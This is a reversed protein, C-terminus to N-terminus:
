KGKFLVIFTTFPTGENFSMMENWIKSPDYTKAISTPGLDSNLQEVALRIELLKDMVPNKFSKMIHKLDDSVLNVIMSGM